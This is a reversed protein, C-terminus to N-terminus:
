HTPKDPKNVILKKRSNFVSSCFDPLFDIAKSKDTAQDYTQLLDFSITRLQSETGIKNFMESAQEIMGFKAYIWGSNFYVCNRDLRQDGSAKLAANLDIYDKLAEEYKGLQMYMLARFALSPYALSASTPNSPLKVSKDFHYAAQKYNQQRLYSIALNYQATVINPNSRVIYSWLTHPSEWVWIQQRTKDSLLIALVSGLLLVLFKRKQTGSSLFVLIGAGILLYAPLTPLYAFRDAAGQEGAQVIGIVPSLAVLYFVWAILWARHKKLWALICAVTVTLVGLIPLFDKWSVTGGLDVLYPYLPSFHLPLVFKNLYLLISNFSNLLKLELPINSIGEETSLTVVVLLVSFIFFPIKERLLRNLPETKISCVVPQIFNTRRIPYVDMLLLLVPFTVAMPKSMLALLFLGLTSYFWYGKTAVECSVYKLYTLMSLLLFLQCLLDKREAVWVVSEVHQPHVAFLLAAIFAAILALNDVRWSYLKSETNNLGFVALMLIFVIGSNIAHLINNSLHYGWSVLGGYIQYDIAWSLWTFPHWYPDKALFMWIINDANLRSIYFVNKVLYHYSDWVLENNTSDHYIWITYSVILFFCITLKAATWCFAKSM